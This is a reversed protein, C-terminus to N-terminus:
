PTGYVPATSTSVRDKSSSEVATIVGVVTGVALLAALVGLLRSDM